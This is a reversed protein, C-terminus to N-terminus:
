SKEFAAPDGSMLSAAPRWLLAGSVDNAFLMGERKRVHAVSVEGKGVRQTPNGNMKPFMAHTYLM